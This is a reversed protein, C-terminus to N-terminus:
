QPNVSPLYTKYTAPALMTKGELADEELKMFDKVMLDKYKLAFVKCSLFSKQIVVKKETENRAGCCGSSLIANCMANYFSYAYGYQPEPPPLWFLEM